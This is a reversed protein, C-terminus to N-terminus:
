ERSDEYVYCKSETEADARDGESKRVRSTEIEEPITQVRATRSAKEPYM